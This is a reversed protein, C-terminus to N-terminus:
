PRMNLPYWIIKVLDGRKAKKRYMHTIYKVDIAPNKQHCVTKIGNSRIIAAGVSVFRLFRSNAGGWDTVGGAGVSVFGLFRSNAGGWDTVAM